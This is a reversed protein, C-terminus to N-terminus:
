RAAEPSAKSRLQPDFNPCVSVQGSVRLGHSLRYITKWFSATDPKGLRLHELAENAQLVAAQM